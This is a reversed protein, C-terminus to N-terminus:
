GLLKLCIIFLLLLKLDFAWLRSLLCLFSLYSGVSIVSATFLCFPKAVHSIYLVSWMCSLFTWIIHDLVSWMCTGRSRRLVGCFLLLNITKFWSAVLIFFIPLWVFVFFNNFAPFCLVLLLQCCVWSLQIKVWSFVLWLDVQDTSCFECIDWFNRGYSVEPLLPCISASVPPNTLLRNLFYM